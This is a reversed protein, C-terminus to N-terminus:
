HHLRDPFARKWLWAASLCFRRIIACDDFFPFTGAVMEDRPLEAVRQAGRM